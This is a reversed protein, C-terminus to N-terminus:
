VVSFIMSSHETILAMLRNDGAFVVLIVFGLLSHNWCFMATTIAGAQDRSSDTNTRMDDHVSSFFRGRDM